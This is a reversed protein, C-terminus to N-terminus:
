WRFGAGAFLLNRRLRGEDRHVYNFQVRIRQGVIWDLGTLFVWSRTVSYDEVSVIDLPKSGRGYAISFYSSDAFYRRLNLTWSFAQGEGQPTCFWRLFTLFHGFYRGVSGLAIDASQAAFDLRRYGLSVEWPSPLGQYVEAQCSVEPYFLAKPSYALDVYAYARSWLRPYLELGYQYDKAQFRSTMNAKLVLPGLSALKFQFALRRDIYDTRGDNFNETQLETRLEYQDRFRPTATKLMRRYERNQPDLTRAKEFNARAKDYNGDWLYVRGLRFYVDANAVEKELVQGYIAL